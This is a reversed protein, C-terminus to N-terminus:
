QSLRAIVQEKHSRKGTLADHIQDLNMETKVAHRTLEQALQSPHDATAALQDHSAQTLERLSAIVRALDDLQAVATNLQGNLQVAARGRAAESDAVSRKTGAVHVSIKMIEELARILRRNLQVVARARAAESNAVANEAREVREAVWSISKQSKAAARVRSGELNRLEQHTTKHARVSAARLEGISKITRRAARLVGYGTALVTVVLLGFMVTLYVSPPTLTLAAYMVAVSAVIWACAAIEIAKTRM